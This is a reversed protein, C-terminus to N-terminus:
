ATPQPEDVHTREAAMKFASVADKCPELTLATPSIQTVVGYWRSPDRFGEGRVYDAGFEVVDHVQLGTPIIWAPIKGAGRNFWFREIGGAIVPNYCVRAVWNRGRTHSEEIPREILTGSVVAFKRPKWKEREAADLAEFRAKEVVRAAEKKVALAAKEEDNPLRAMTIGHQEWLTSQKERIEQWSHWADPHEFVQIQKTFLSHGRLMMVTARGGIVHPEEKTPVYVFEGPKPYLARGNKIKPFAANKPDM